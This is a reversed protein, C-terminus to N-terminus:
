SAYSRPRTNEVFRYIHGYNDSYFGPVSNEVMWDLKYRHPVPLECAKRYTGFIRDWFATTVGHNMTEDVFHHYLHHARMQAAFAHTPAAEHLRRHILEYIFYMGLFSATFLGALVGNTILFSLSFVLPGVALTTFFKDRTSAFYNRKHHHKTHEKHFITKRFYGRLEHGFFRHLMYEALTWSLAGSIVAVLLKLWHM